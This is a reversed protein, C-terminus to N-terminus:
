KKRLVRINQLRSRCEIARRRIRTGRDITPKDDLHAFATARDFDPQYDKCLLHYLNKRLSDREVQAEALEDRLRPRDALLEGCLREWEKCEAVADSSGPVGGFHAQFEGTPTPMSQIPNSM